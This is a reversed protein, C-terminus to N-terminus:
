ADKTPGLPAIARDRDDIWNALAQFNRDPHQLRGGGRQGNSLLGSERLLRKQLEDHKHLLLSDGARAIVKPWRGQVSVLFTMMRCSDSMLRVRVSSSSTGTSFVARASSISRM